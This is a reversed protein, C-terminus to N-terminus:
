ILGGCGEPALFGVPQECLNILEALLPDAKNIDAMPQLLDRADSVADYYQAVAPQDGGMSGGLHRHVHQELVHDSSVHVANEWFDLLWGAFFDQSHLAQRTGVTRKSVDAKRHSS